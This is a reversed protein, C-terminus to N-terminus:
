FPTLAVGTPGIGVAVTNVKTPPTTTADIVDVANNMSDTVYARSADPTFAVGYPFSAPITALVTHFTPSTPDTDIVSINSVGTPYGTNGVYARSGDPTFAIPEPLAGGSFLAAVVTSYIPSAPEADIVFL